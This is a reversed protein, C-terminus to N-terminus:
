KSTVPKIISRLSKTETLFNVLAPAIRGNLVSYRKLRHQSLDDSKTSKIDTDSFLFSFTEMLEITQEVSKKIKFLSELVTPSIHARYLLLIEVIQRRFEHFRSLLLVLKESAIKDLIYPIRKKADDILQDDVIIQADNVADKTKDLFDKAYTFITIGFPAVSYTALKMSLRKIEDDVLTQVGNLELLDRKRILNDIVSLSITTFLASACINILLDQFINWYDSPVQHSGFVILLPVFILVGLTIFVQPHKKLLKIFDTM